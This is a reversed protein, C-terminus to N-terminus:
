HIDDLCDRTFLAQAIRAHRQVGDRGQWAVHEVPLYGRERDQLVIGHKQALAMYGVISALGQTLEFMRSLEGVTIQAHENLAQRINAKLLPMDIDADDIMERMADLDVDPADADDVSTETPRELPDYLALQSVSRLSTTSLTLTFDITRGSTMMDKLQMAARATSQLLRQIQRQERFERSEVFTKLSRGLGTMVEQVAGGEHMLIDTVRFLRRREQLPLMQIFPRSELAELADRLGEFQAPDTLLRWFAQFSKGEESEAIADSGSFVRELVDSRPGEHEVLQRRLDRSLREFAERVQRFDAAIAETMTVIHRGREIARSTDLPTVGHAIVNEIERTIRAAEEHLTKLRSAPDPDTDTALRHVSDLVVALGSETAAQRPELQRLLLLMAPVIEAALEYVEETAGEPFSRALWKAQVWEAVLMQETKEIAEGRARLQALEASLKEMLAATGVKTSTEPFLAQLLAIVLHAQHAALLKWMPGDRLEGLRILAVSSKM